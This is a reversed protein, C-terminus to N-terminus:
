GNFHSTQSKIFDVFATKKKTKFTKETLFNDLHKLIPNYTPSIYPFYPLHPLVRHEIPKTKKRRILSAQPRVNDHLLLPGRRNVLVPEKECLNVYMDNIHQYYKVATITEGARLFKYDFAGAAGVM